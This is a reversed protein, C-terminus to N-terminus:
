IYRIDLSGMRECQYVAPNNTNCWYMLHCPGSSSCSVRQKASSLRPDGPSTFASSCELSGDAELTLTTDSQQNLTLKSHTRGHSLIHESLYTTLARMLVTADLLPFDPQNSLYLAM